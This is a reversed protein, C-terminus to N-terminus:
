GCSRAPRRWCPCCCRFRALPIHLLRQQVGHELVAIGGHAILGAHGELLELLGLDELPELGQDLLPQDASAWTSGSGSPGGDSTVAALM